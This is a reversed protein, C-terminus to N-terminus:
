SPKVIWYEVRTGSVWEAFIINLTSMTYPVGGLKVWGAPFTPAVSHNHYIKQVIGIKAGTLSDTINSTSPSAVTNYVQPIAFSVVSGTTATAYPQLTSVDGDQTALSGLGLNIRSTAVDFVDSLNNAKLMKGALANFVVTNCPATTTSSNNLDTTVKADAYTNSTTNIANDGTNPGSLTTIGLISRIKSGTLWDVMGKISSFLSSSAENGVITDTKNASNEAIYGINNSVAAWNVNIVGPSDIVARLVDGIKLVKDGITGAVSITWLDGKLIAGSTGSGGSSPYTNTSADYSGRDDWLGVVLGEAYSKASNLTNTDATAQATSVPKNIDSTNDVNGLSLDAKVLTINDNVGPFVNNVSKAGNVNTININTTSM